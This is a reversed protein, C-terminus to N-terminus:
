MAQDWPIPRRIKHFNVFDYFNKGLQTNIMESLNHVSVALADALGQLTLDSKRFPKETEMLHLLKKVHRRARNPDMGSRAYQPRAPEAQGNGGKGNRSGTAVPLVSAPAAVSDSMRPGFIEPQRLGLYGIAYVFVAIALAVYDDYGEIPDPGAGSASEFLGFVFFVLALGWLAVAGITMNRLWALNLHEISSFTHKIRERHRTLLRIILVLYILSYVFKVHNISRLDPTWPHGEPAQLLALKEAGSQLFFPTMYLVVLAFPVLHLLYRKRFSSVGESVARAYLYLLPAFLFPFPYTVGIFHPWVEDYGKAHYVTTLLELTFAVMVGALIKNAVSNRRKSALIVALFIGQAAGLLHITSLWDDSLLAEM